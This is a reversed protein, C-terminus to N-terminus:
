ATRCRRTAVPHAQIWARADDLFRGHRLGSDTLVSPLAADSLRQSHFSHTWVRGERRYEITASLEDAGPL